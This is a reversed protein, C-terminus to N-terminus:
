IVPVEQKGCVLAEKSARQYTRQGKRQFFNTELTVSVAVMESEEGEAMKNTKTGQTVKLAVYSTIVMRSWDLAGSFHNQLSVLQRPTTFCAANQLNQQVFYFPGRSKAVRQLLKCCMKKNRSLNYATNWIRLMAKRGTECCHRPVLHVNKDSTNGYSLQVTNYSVTVILEPKEFEVVDQIVCSQRTGEVKANM